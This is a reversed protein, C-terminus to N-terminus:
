PPVADLAAEVGVDHCQELFQLRMRLVPLHQTDPGGARDIRTILERGFEQAEKRLVRPHDLLVQRVGARDHVEALAMFGEAVRVDM